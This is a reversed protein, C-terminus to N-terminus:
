LVKTKNGLPKQLERYCNFDLLRYNGKLPKPHNLSKVMTLVAFLAVQKLSFSPLNLKFLNNLSATFIGDSSANLTLSSPAKLSRIKHFIDRSMVSLHVLLCKFIGM